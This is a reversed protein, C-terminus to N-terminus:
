PPWSSHTRFYPMIHGISQFLCYMWLLDLKKCRIHYHHDFVLGMNKGNKNLSSALQGKEKQPRGVACYVNHAAGADSFAFRVAVHLCILRALIRDSQSANFQFCPHTHTPLLCTPEGCREGKQFFFIQENKDFGKM